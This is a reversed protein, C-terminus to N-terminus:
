RRPVGPSLRRTKWQNVDIGCAGDGVHCRRESAPKRVVTSDASLPRSSSSETSEYTTSRKTPSPSRTFRKDNSNSYCHRLNSLGPRNLIASSQRPSPTLRPLDIPSVRSYTLDNIALDVIEDDHRVVVGMDTIVTRVTSLLEAASTIGGTWCKRVVEGLYKAELRPWEQRSVLAEKAGHDLGQGEGPWYGTMLEYIVCGWLFFDTELTPVAGVELPQFYEGSVGISGIYPGTRGTRFTSQLFGLISLSTGSANLWCSEVRLDGFAISYSHIFEQARALHLAWQYVLNLRAQKVRAHATSKDNSGSDCQEYIEGRNASLFQQLNPGGPNAM